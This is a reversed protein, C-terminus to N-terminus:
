DLTRAILYLVLLTVGVAVAATIAITAGTSLNKGKAQIVNPYPIETTTGTKPDTIVFSDANAQSVYGSLKTKDRLKVSIQAAPGTGLKAVGAKVEAARAAAKEEKSTAAAAPTSALMLLLSCVLALSIRKQYLPKFM